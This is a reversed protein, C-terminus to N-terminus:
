GELLVSLQAITAAVDEPSARDEVQGELEQFLLEAEDAAEPDMSRLAPALGRYRGRARALADRAGGYEPESVVQGDEVAEAYEIEVIELTGTVSALGTRVERIAAVPDVAPEGRVAWGLGFGVAGGLLAAALVLPWRRQRPHYIAM